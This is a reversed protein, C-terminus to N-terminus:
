LTCICVSLKSFSLLHIQINKVDEIHGEYLFTATTRAQHWLKIFYGEEEKKIPPM